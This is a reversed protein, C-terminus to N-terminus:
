IEEQTEGDLGYEKVLNEEVANIIRMESNEPIVFCVGKICVPEGIILSDLESETITVIDKPM